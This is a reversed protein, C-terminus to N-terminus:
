LPRPCPVRRACVCPERAAVADCFWPRRFSGPVRKRDGGGDEKSRGRVAPRPSSMREGGEEGSSRPSPPAHFESRAPLQLAPGAARALQEPHALTGDWGSPSERQSSAGHRTAAAQRGCCATGLRGSQLAGWGWVPRGPRGSDQSRLPGCTVQAPVASTRIMEGNGGAKDEAVPVSYYRGM